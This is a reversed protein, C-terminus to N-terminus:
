KGESISSCQCRDETEASPATLISIAETWARASAVPSMGGVGGIELGVVGEVLTAKDPMEGELVCLRDTADGEEGTDGRTCEEWGSDVEKTIGEGSACRSSARAIVSTPASV